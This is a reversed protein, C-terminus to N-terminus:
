VGEPFEAKKLDETIQKKLGDLDRFKIEPRIFHHFFIRIKKGYLDGSFDTLFTEIRVAHNMRDSDISPNDGVNTIGRLMKEGSNERGDEALIRVSTSYVGSRPLLKGKPPFINVTPYGLVTGGLHNGETVEGEVSYEEGLMRNASEMDGNKLKERIFTSSIDQNSDREKDIIFAQFEGSSAMEKLLAANGKGDKGFSCDPGAVIAKMNMRSILINKVFMEPSMSATEANFPYEVVFDIGAEKLKKRRETGTDIQQSETGNLVDMPSTSFTFVATRLHYRDAVEHMVKFIKRHGRHDGDFKGISVVTPETIRIDFPQICEKM